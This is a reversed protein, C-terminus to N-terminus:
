RLMARFQDESIISVGMKEAKTLKSGADDGVILYDLKKSVGSAVVGGNEIVMKEAEQRKISLTGTILFSKGALSTGKPAEKKVSVNDMLGNLLSGKAELGELLARARIEGVGPVSSLSEATVAGGLLDEPSVHKFLMEFMRRGWGEIGLCALIHAKSAEVGSLAGRVIEAQRPGFGAGVLSAETVSFIDWPHKLLGGEVMRAVAAEAIGKIDLKELIHIVAAQFQAPCADNVCYLDIEMRELAKGCSPCRSPSKIDRAKARKLVSVLRPIIENAKEFLIEDGVAVDAKAIWDLNNLTIRSVVSGSIRTPKIVAVPVVRGTRSTTWEIDEVVSPKKVSEFKFALAGKPCNGSVGMSEFDKQDDIRVVIGDTEYPLGADMDKLRDIAQQIEEEGGCKVVVHPPTEFGLQNLIALKESHASIFGMSPNLGVKFRGSDLIEYAVFRVKRSATISPDKQRLSGAAANRPNALGAPKGGYGPQDMVGYFDGKSIYAEGRAEFSVSVKPARPLSEMAAANPTVVEGVKGDGRTAALDLRGPLYMVAMSCGDIKPMMVVTKGSFRDLIEKASHCKALSGMLVRHEHKEGFTPRGIEGLVASNPRLSELEKKLADYEPDSITPADEDYYRRNHERIQEELEDARADGTFIIDEERVHSM